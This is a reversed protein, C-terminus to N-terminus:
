SKINLIKARHLAYPPTGEYNVPVQPRALALGLLLSSRRLAFKYFFRSGLSLEAFRWSHKAGIISCSAVPRDM